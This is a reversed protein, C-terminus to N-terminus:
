LGMSVNEEGLLNYGATTHRIGKPKGPRAAPTFSSCRHKATSRSPPAIPTFGADMLEHWWIIAARSDNHVDTRRDAQLRHMERRDAVKQLRKM